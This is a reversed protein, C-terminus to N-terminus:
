NEAQKAAKVADSHATGNSKDKRDVLGTWAPSKKSRKEIM